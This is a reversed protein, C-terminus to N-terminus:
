HSDFLTLSLSLPTLIRRDGAVADAVADATCRGECEEEEVVGAAAAASLVTLHMMGLKFELCVCVCM